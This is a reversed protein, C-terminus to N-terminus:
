LTFVIQINAIKIIISLQKFWQAMSKWVTIEHRILITFNFSLVNLKHPIGVQIGQFTSACTHTLTGDQFWGCQVHESWEKVSGEDRCCVDGLPPRCHAWSQAAHRAQSCLAHLQQPAPLSIHLGSQQTHWASGPPVLPSCSPPNEGCRPPPDRLLHHLLATRPTRPTQPERDISVCWWWGCWSRRGQKAPHTEKKNTLTTEVQVGEYAAGNLCSSWGTAQLQQFSNRLKYRRLELPFILWLRVSQLHAKRNGEQSEPYRDAGTAHTTPLDAKPLTPFEQITM